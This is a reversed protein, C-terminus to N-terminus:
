LGNGLLFRKMLNRFFTNHPKGALSARGEEARDSPLISLGSLLDIIEELVGDDYEPHGQLSLVSRGVMYMEFETRESHGLRVAQDPMRTVTDTHSV